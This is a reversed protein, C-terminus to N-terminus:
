LDWIQGLKRPVIHPVVLSDLCLQDGVYKVLNNARVTVASVLLPSGGPFRNFQWLSLSMSILGESRTRTQAYAKHIGVILQGGHLGCSRSFCSWSSLSHTKAPKKPSSSQYSNHDVQHALFYHSHSSCFAALFLADNTKLNAVTVYCAARIETAWVSMTATLINQSLYSLLTGTRYKDDHPPRRIETPPEQNETFM